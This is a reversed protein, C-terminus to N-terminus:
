CTGQDKCSQQQPEGEGTAWDPMQTGILLVVFASLAIIAARM